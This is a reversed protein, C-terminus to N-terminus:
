HYFMSMNVKSRSPSPSVSIAKRTIISPSPTNAVNGVKRIPKHEHHVAHVEQPSDQRQEVEMASSSAASSSPSTANYKLIWPHNLAHEVSMRRRPDMQLLRYIFDM